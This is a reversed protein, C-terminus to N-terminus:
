PQEGSHGTVDLLHPCPDLFHQREAGVLQNSGHTSAVLSPQAAFQRRKVDALNPRARYRGAELHDAPAIGAVRARQAVECRRRRHQVDGAAHSPQELEHVGVRHRDDPRPM